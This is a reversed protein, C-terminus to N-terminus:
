DISYNIHKVIKLPYFKKNIYDKIEDKIDRDRLTKKNMKFIEKPKFWGIRSIEHHDFKIKGSLIKGVFIIKISHVAVGEKKYILGNKVSSYIGLFNIIKIKFGTEELVERTAGSIPNEKKDLWGAPQNWKGTDKGSAEQVLLIKGNKEVICGVIIFPYPSSFFSKNSGKM